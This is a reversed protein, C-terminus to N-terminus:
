AAIPRRAQIRSAATAGPAPVGVPATSKRSPPVASPVAESVPPCAVKVDLESELVVGWFRVHKATMEDRQTVLWTRLKLAREIGCEFRLEIPRKAIFRAADFPHSVIQPRM